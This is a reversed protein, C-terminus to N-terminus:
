TRKRGLIFVKRVHSPDNGIIVPAIEKGTRHVEIFTQLIFVACFMHAQLLRPSTHRTKYVNCSVRCLVSISIMAHM